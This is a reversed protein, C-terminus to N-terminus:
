GPHFIDMYFDVSVHYLFSKPKLNIKLMMYTIAPNWLFSLSIGVIQDSTIVFVYIVLSLWM